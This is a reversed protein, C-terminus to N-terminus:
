FVFCTRAKRLHNFDSVANRADLQYLSLWVCLDVQRLLKAGAENNTYWSSETHSIKEVMEM